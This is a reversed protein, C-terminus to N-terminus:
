DPLSGRHGRWPFFLIGEKDGGSSPTTSLLNPGNIRSFSRSISARRSTKLRKRTGAEEDEEFADDNYENHENYAKDAVNNDEEAADTGETDSSELESNDSSDIIEIVDATSIRSSTTPIRRIYTGRGTQVSSISRKVAGSSATAGNNVTIRDKISPGAHYRLSATTPLM